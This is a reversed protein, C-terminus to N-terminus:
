LFIPPDAVILEGEGAGPSISLRKFALITAISSLIRLFNSSRRSCWSSLLGTRFPRPIDGETPPGTRFPGCVQACTAALFVRWFPTPGLEVAAVVVTAPFLSPNRGGGGKCNSFPLLFLLPTVRGGGGLVSATVNVAVLPSDSASAIVVTLCFTGRLSIPMAETLNLLALVPPRM